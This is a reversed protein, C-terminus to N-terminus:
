FRRNLSQLVGGYAEFGAFIKSRSGFTITVDKMQGGDIAERMLRGKEESMVCFLMMRSGDARRCIMRYRAARLSKPYVERLIAGGYGAAARMPRIDTIEVSERELGGERVERRARLVTLYNIPITLAAFLPLVILLFWGAGALLLLLIISVAIVSDIFLCYFAEKRYPAYTDQRYDAQKPSENM